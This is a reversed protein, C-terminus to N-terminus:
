CRALNRIFLLADKINKESFVRIGNRELLAATVGKGRKLTRTFTGDCIFTSGCSPSNEKLVAARINNNAAAELAKQAGKIFFATVDYGTLTKVSAKRDLVYFGDKCSIESPSRPVSLGGAVEPCFPILAAVSKLDNIIKDSLPLVFGDYRTQEGLLCASVLIKHMSYILRFKIFKWFTGLDDYRCFAPIRFAANTVTITRSSLGKQQFEM